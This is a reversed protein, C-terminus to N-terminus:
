GTKVAFLYGVFATIGMAITSWFCIRIIGKAISSGGSKAAIM